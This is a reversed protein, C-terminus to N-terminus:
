SFLQLQKNLGIAQEQAYFQVGIGLLRIPLNQRKRGASILRVFSNTSLAASSEELTTQSFDGFKVKAQIKRIREQIPRNELREQLRAFLRTTEAKCEELSSLDEKFTREVSVSKRDRHTVVPRNDEGRCFDYLRPGMRGFMDILKGLELQQLDACTYIGHNHLRTATKSGVGQIHKIPLHPIFSRVKEPPIVFLGDPKKWDSAVKALFKNPAVGASITIGLEQEVTSRIERALLTASGNHRLSDTVDLYAEDISVKEVTHSFRKLITALQNSVERYKAMSHAVLQLDPCLFKAQWVPMASHIGYRRAQYNCTSIVARKSISGSVAMPVTRLSPNDRM